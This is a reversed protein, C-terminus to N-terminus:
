RSIFFNLKEVFCPESRFPLFISLYTEVSYYNAKGKLFYNIPDFTLYMKANAIQYGTAVIPVICGDQSFNFLWINKTKKVWYLEPRVGISLPGYM